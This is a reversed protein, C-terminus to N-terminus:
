GHESCVRGGILFELFALRSSKQGQQVRLGLFMLGGLQELVAQINVSLCSMVV